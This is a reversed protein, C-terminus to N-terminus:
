RSGRRAPSASLKLNKAAPAAAARSRSSAKSAPKAAPRIVSRPAVKPTSRAPKAMSRVVGAVPKRAPVKKTVAKAAPKAKSVKVAAEAIVNDGEMPAMNKFRSELGLLFKKRPLGGNYGVLKGDAGIVRHCPILIAVPNQNCALGAARAGKPQGAATAIQAYNRTQGYPIELLAKWVAIQFASGVPDLAFRLDSEAGCFYQELAEALPRMERVSPEWTAGPNESAHGAITRKLSRKDMFEVYRVGRETAAIFLLGLPQPASMVHYVIRM